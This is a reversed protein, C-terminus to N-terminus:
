AAEKAVFAKSTKDFDLGKAAARELCLHWVQAKTAKDLKTLDALAANFEDLSPDDDSLFARWEEVVAAVKASESSIRGMSAKAEAMLKGLFAPEVAFDPLAIQGWNCPPTKAMWGDTPTFDIVRKGSDFHMYGVMDCHNMLTNYSGGVIDPCYYVSDGNKEGKEHALFLISQGKARISGVWQAVQSKLVGYGPLSLGGMKNGNKPNDRIIAESMKDLCMGVTDVVITKYPSLDFSRVDDWSDFQVAAKRGYARYIGPDFALTIPEDATQALSTKRSGPQGFLLCCLQQVEITDSPQILKAAM